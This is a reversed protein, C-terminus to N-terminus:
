GFLHKYFQTLLNLTLYWLKHNLSFYYVDNYTETFLDNLAQNDGAQTRAVLSPLKEKDM